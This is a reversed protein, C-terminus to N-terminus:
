GSSVSGQLLAKLMLAFPYQPDDKLLEEIARAAEPKKGADFLRTAALYRRNSAYVRDMGEWPGKADKHRLAKTNKLYGELIRGTDEPTKENNLVQLIKDETEPDRAQDLLQVLAILDERFDPHSGHVVVEELIRDVGSPEDCEIMLQFWRFPLDEHSHPKLSYLMYHRPLPWMQKLQEYAKMELDEELLPESIVYALIRASVASRASALVDISLEAVARDDPSDLLADAATTVREDPATESCQELRQLLYGAYSYIILPIDRLPTDIDEIARLTRDAALGSSRFRQAMNARTELRREIHEHIGADIVRRFEDDELSARDEEVLRGIEYILFDDCGVRYDFNGLPNEPRPM